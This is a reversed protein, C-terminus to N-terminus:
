AQPPKTVPGTIVKSSIVVGLSYLVDLSVSGGDAMKSKDEM